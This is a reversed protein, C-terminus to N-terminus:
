GKSKGTNKSGSHLYAFSGGLMALAIVLFALMRYFVEMTVQDELGTAWSTENVEGWGMAAGLVHGGGAMYMGMGANLSKQLLTGGNKAYGGRLFPM